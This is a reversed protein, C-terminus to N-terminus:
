RGGYYNEDEIESPFVLGNNNFIPSKTLYIINENM